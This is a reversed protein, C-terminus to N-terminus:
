LVLSFEGASLINNRRINVDLANTLMRIIVHARNHIAAHHLLSIGQEDQKYVKTGSIKRALAILMGVCGRQTCVKIGM